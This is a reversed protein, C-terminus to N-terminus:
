DHIRRLALLSLSCRMTTRSWNSDIPSTAAMTMGRISPLGSPHPAPSSNSTTLSTTWFQTQVWLCRFSFRVLHSCWKALTNPPGRSNQDAFCQFNPSGYYCIWWRVSSKLTIALHTILTLEPHTEQYKNLPKASTSFETTSKGGRWFTLLDARPPPSYYSHNLAHRTDDTTWRRQRRYRNLEWTPVNACRM